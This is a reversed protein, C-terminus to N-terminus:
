PRWTQGPGPRTSSSWGSLKSAVKTSQGSPEGGRWTPVIANELWWAKKQLQVERCARLGMGLSLRGEPGTRCPRCRARTHHLEGDKIRQSLWVAHDGSIAKPKHGGMPEPIMSGTEDVRKMWNIATSIAIGFQKAARNRSMGGEIAAVVRKRLDQSYPKGIWAPRRGLWCPSNSVCQNPFGLQNVGLGMEGLGQLFGTLDDTVHDVHAADRGELEWDERVVEKAGDPVVLVTTMGLQHPVVLNRALDEFMASREPISATSARPVEPLDAAGAEPELEAAIIDFVAEFHERLHRAAGTGRRRPRDLRQDPDAQPGPTRRDGRGDGPEAGAAFSRDQSRLGSLRRCARRARDDHRAHHHRLPPLLGEPDRASRGRIDEALASVFEGIRADVQQWLNVHHPYLTNDLDFVWTDIATFPRPTTQMM